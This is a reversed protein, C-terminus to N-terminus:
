ALVKRYGLAVRSLVTSHSCGLRKALSHTNIETDEKVAELITSDEVTNLRGSRPKNEFNTEGSAFRAFWRKDTKIATTDEGLRSNINRAAVTTGTGGRWKYFIIARLQEQTISMTM